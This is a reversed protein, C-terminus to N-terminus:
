AYDFEEPELGEWDEYMFDQFAKSMISGPENGYWPSSRHSQRVRRNMESWAQFHRRRVVSVLEILLSM